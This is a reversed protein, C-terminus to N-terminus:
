DSTLSRGGGTGGLPYQGAWFGAQKRFFHGCDAWERPRNYGERNSIEIPFLASAPGFLLYELFSLRRDSSKGFALIIKRWCRLDSLGVTRINEVGGPEVGRV